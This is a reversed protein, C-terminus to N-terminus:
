KYKVNSTSLRAFSGTFQHLVGLTAIYHYGRYGSQTEVRADKDRTIVDIFTYGKMWKIVKDIDSPYPCIIKVGILDDIDEYKYISEWEIERLGPLITAVCPDKLENLFAELDKSGKQRLLYETDVGDADLAEAVKALVHETRRRRIKKLVSNFSKFERRPAVFRINKKGEGDQHKEFDQCIEEQVGMYDTSKIDDYNHKIAAIEEVTLGIM